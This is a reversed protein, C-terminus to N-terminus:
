HLNDVTFNQGEIWGRERLDRSMVQWLSERLAAHPAGRDSVGQRRSAKLVFRRRACAWHSFLTDRRRINM